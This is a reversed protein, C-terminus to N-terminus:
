EDYLKEKRQFRVTYRNQKDSTCTFLTLDWNGALMQPSDLGPIREIRSVVYYHKTGDVETFILEDGKKLKGIPGFHRKYNHGAIILDDTAISGKYRCPAIKLNSDNWDQMVPLELNIAPIKLIGIYLKGDVKIATPTPPATVSAVATEDPATSPTAQVVAETSDPAPTAAPLLQQLQQLAKESQTGAQQDEVNNHILLILVAMIFLLGLILLAAGKVKRRIKM